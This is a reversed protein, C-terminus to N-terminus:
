QPGAPKQWPSSFRRRRAPTVRYQKFNALDARSHAHLVHLQRSDGCTSAHRRCQGRCRSLWCDLAARCVAESHARSLWTPQSRCIREAAEATPPRRITHRSHIARLHIPLPQRPLWATIPWKFLGPRFGYRCVIPCQPFRRTSCQWNVISSYFRRHLQRHARPRDFSFFFM